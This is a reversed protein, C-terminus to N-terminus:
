GGIRCWDRGALSWAHEDNHGVAVGNHRIMRALMVRTGLATIRIVTPGFGADGVLRTGVGWGNERCIEAAHRHDHRTGGTM